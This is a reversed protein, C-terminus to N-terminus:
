QIKPSFGTAGGRGPRTQLHFDQGGETAFSSGTIGLGVACSAFCAQVDPRTLGPNSNKGLDCAQGSFHPDSPGSHTGDNASSIALDRKTCTDLCSMLSAQGSTIPGKANGVFHYLGYPDVYSLPNGGVYTYTNPATRELYRSWRIRLSKKVM